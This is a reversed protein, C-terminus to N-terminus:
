RLHESLGSEVAELDNYLSSVDQPTFRACEYRAKHGAQFLYEYQRRVSRFASLSNMTARRGKHDSSPSSTIKIITIEVCHVAAYFLAVVQWGSYRGSYQENFLDNYLQKNLEIQALRETKTPCSEM